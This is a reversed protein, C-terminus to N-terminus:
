APFGTQRSARLLQAEGILAIMIDVHDVLSYTAANELRAANAQKELEILQLLADGTKPMTATAIHRGLHRERRYDEAGAKAARVLVRPRKLNQVVSMIDLM